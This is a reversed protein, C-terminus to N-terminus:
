SRDSRGLLPSSQHGLASFFVAFGLALLNAEEGFVLDLMDVVLVILEQALEHVFAALDHGPLNGASRGNVLALECDGDLARAVETKQGEHCLVHTSASPFVMSIMSFSSM